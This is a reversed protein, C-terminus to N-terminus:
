IPSNVPIGKQRAIEYVVIMYDDISNFTKM